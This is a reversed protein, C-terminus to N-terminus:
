SVRLRAPGDFFVSTGADLAWFPRCEQPDLPSLAVVLHVQQEWCMQWFSSATHDLPHQAVIFERPDSFGSFSSLNHKKILFFTQSSYVSFFGPYFGKFTHTKNLCINTYFCLLSVCAPSVCFVFSLLIIKKDGLGSSKECIQTVCGRNRALDRGEVKEEGRGKKNEIVVGSKKQSFLPLVPYFFPSDWIM